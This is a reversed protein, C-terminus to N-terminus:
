VSSPWNGEGPLSPSVLGSGQPNRIPLAQKKILTSVLITDTSRYVVKTPSQGEVVASAHVSLYPQKPLHLPNATPRSFPCSIPAVNQVSFEQSEPPSCRRGHSLQRMLGSICGVCM